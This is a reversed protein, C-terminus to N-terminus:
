AVRHAQRARLRESRVMGDLRDCLARWTEASPTRVGAAQALADRDANRWAAVVCPVEPNCREADTLWSWVIDAMATVKKSRALREHANPM